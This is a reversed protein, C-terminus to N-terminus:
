NVPLNAAPGLISSLVVATKTRAATDPTRIASAAQKFLRQQQQEGTEVFQLYFQTPVRILSEVIQHQTKLENIIEAPALHASSNGVLSPGFVRALNSAPMKCETTEAIRQLHLVIFSLTDRNAPPLDQIAQQLESIKDHENSLDSARAFRFWSDYTVLHESLNNLFDKVFGCLVHVDNIKRLDPAQHRKVLRDKIQKIQSDSGNVRYLGVEHSLLGKAEIENVIMQLIPPINPRSLEDDGSCGGSNSNFSPVYDAICGQSPFNLVPYCPRQLLDRCEAHVVM